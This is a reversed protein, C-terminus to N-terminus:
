NYRYEMVRDLSLANRWLADAINEENNARMINLSFSRIRALIGPNKRIRCADELCRSM